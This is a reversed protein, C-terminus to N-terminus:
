HSRNSRGRGRGRARRHSRHHSHSRGRGKNHSRNRNRRRGGVVSTSDPSDGATKSAPSASAPADASSLSSGM